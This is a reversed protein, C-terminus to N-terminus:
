DSSKRRLRSDGSDAALRRLASKLGPDAIHEALARILAASAASLRRKPGKVHKKETDVSEGLSAVRVWLEGLGNFVPEQRLAAILRERQERLRSAWLSSAAQVLLRGSRYSVPRTYLALPAPVRRGWAQELERTREQQRSLKEFMAASLYSRLTKLDTPSM